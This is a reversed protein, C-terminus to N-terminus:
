NNTRAVNNSYNNSNNNRKNDNPQRFDIVGEAIEAAALVDGWLTIESNLNSHWLKKQISPRARTWLRLV